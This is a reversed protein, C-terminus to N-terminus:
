ELGNLKLQYMLAITKSDDIEGKKIMEEIEKYTFKYLDIREDVDLHQGLKQDTEGYYLYIKENDYGCTPIIYPFKIINKVSYGTEEIAEREIAKDPEENLEIKGAPFEFMEKGIAYRYQKVMFYKNDHKLGICVGGNHYVVERFSRSGDDLEVEDKVVRIIKGKYVEQSNIKKEM